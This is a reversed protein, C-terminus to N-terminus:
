HRWRRLVGMKQLVDPLKGQWHSQVWIREAMPQPCGKDPSPSDAARWALALEWHVSPWRMLGLMMSVAALFAFFMGLRMPGAARVRLAEFAGVGPVLLGDAEVAVTADNTLEAEAGAREVARVASRLNGSGYDLVAVRPRTM